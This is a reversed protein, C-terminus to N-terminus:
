WKTPLKFGTKEILSLYTEMVDKAPVGMGEGEKIWDLPPNGMLKMWNAKETDPLEHFAVGGKKMAEMVSAEESKQLEINYKEAKRAANSIIQKLEQPFGDFLTKNVAVGYACWAGLGILTAHKAYEDLGFPKAIAFPVVSGDIMGTQLAMAREPLAMTVPVAGISQFWKKTSVGAVCIKKGKFDEIKVLPMRSQLEFSSTVSRLLLKAGHKEWEANLSPAKEYLQEIVATQAAIDRPVFPASRCFNNLYLKSPFYNYGVGGLDAMGGKIADLEEGPQTLSGSWAYRFTVAGKTEKEIEKCFYTLLKSDPFKEPYPGGNVMLRMPKITQAEAQRGHAALLLLGALSLILGFRSVLLIKGKKM